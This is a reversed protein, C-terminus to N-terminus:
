IVELEPAPIIFKGGNRAFDGNKQIISPAFNWALILLFDPRYEDIASSPVVPIHMGPTFLGQKLPSDDIIFDVMDPGIGFHYMLTTAKAPAGFGAIRKGQSKIDLLLTQLEQKLRNVRAAFAQLTDLRDLGVSEEKRVAEEVSEDVTHPGGKLQTIARLSGGHSDVRMVEILELGHKDLFRRLPKVSHYDLHEHYIVDFLTKEWVDLLYSVEFVFVGSPSLLMKIGEIVSKLDDIHAFVNNATVVKAKGREGSLARALEPTFFGNITEIGKATTAAAIEKAPDIGLVTMGKSQFSSLLTGDNSGIDIVLDGAGLAFRGILFDAYESFHKVFVQSTGSVYVYHEFLVKPDVIDLLQAHSCEHCFFIDLPYVAQETGLCAAPVFANALPTPTM